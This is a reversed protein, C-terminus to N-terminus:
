KQPQAPLTAPAAAAPIAGGAGAAMMQDCRQARAQPDIPCTFVVMLQKYSRPCPDINGSNRLLQMPTEVVAGGKADILAEKVAATVDAHAPCPAWAAPRGKDTCSGGASSTFRGLQANVVVPGAIGGGGPCGQLQWGTEGECIYQTYSRGETPGEIDELLQQCLSVSRAASDQQVKTLAQAQEDKYQVFSINLANMKDIAKHAVMVASGSDMKLDSADQLQKSQENAREIGQWVQFGTVGCLALIAFSLAIWLGIIHQRLLKIKKPSDSDYSAAAPSISTPTIRSSDFPFSQSNSYLGGGGVGGAAVGEELETLHRRREFPTFVNSSDIM